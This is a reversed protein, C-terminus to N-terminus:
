LLNEQLALTINNLGKKLSQTDPWGYGIRMYRKDMEFWHGPGVLTKYKNYLTNYFAELDIKIEEKIRPFCVVGGKPEVWELYPNQDM